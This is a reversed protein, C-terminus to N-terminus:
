KLANSLLKTPARSTSPTEPPIIWARYVGSGAQQLSAVLNIELKAIRSSRLHLVSRSSILKHNRKRVVCSAHM